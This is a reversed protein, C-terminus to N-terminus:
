DLFVRCGDACSLVLTLQQRESGPEEWKEDSPLKLNPFAQIIRAIGYSALMLAFDELYRNDTSVETLHSFAIKSGLCVRQGGNFPLYGWKIDSLSDDEWREPRSEKADSGYLDDRPHMHYVSFAVPMGARILTPSDADPGGGWPLVTTNKCFRM